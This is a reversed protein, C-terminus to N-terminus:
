FAFAGVETRVRWNQWLAAALTAGLLFCVETMHSVQNLCVNKVHQCHCSWYPAAKNYGTLRGKLYHERAYENLGM